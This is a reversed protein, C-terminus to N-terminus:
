QYIAPTGVEWFDQQNEDLLKKDTDDPRLSPTKLYVREINEPFNCGTLHMMSNIGPYKRAESLINLRLTRKYFPVHNKRVAAFAWDCNKEMFTMVHYRLLLLAYNSSYKPIDPHTVFRSGSFLRAEIRRHGIVRDIEDSYAIQEPITNHSENPDYWTTRISGIVKNNVTLAWLVHNSQHDFKDEFKKDPNEDLAGENRYALYRLSYVEDRLQSSWVRKILIM